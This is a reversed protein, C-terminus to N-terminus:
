ENHNKAAVEELMGTVVTNLSTANASAIVSKGTEKEIKKRAEGAIKEGTNVVDTKYRQGDKHSKLKLQHCFTVLQRGEENLKQKLKNWYKGSTEKEKDM